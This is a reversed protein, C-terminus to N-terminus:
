ATEMVSLCALRKVKFLLFSTTQQSAAHLLFIAIHFPQKPLFPKPLTGDGTNFSKRPVKVAVNAGGRIWIDFCEFSKPHYPVMCLFFLFLIWGDKLPMKYSCNLGTHNIWECWWNECMFKQIVTIDSMDIQWSKSSPARCYQGECVLGFGGPLCICCSDWSWVHRWNSGTSTLLWYWLTSVSPNGYIDMFGMLIELWVIHRFCISILCCLQPFLSRVMEWWQTLGGSGLIRCPDVTLNDAPVLWHEKRGLQLINGQISYCFVLDSIYEVSQKHVSIWM